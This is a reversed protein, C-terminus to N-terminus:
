GNDSEEDESFCPCLNYTGVVYGTDNCRRCEFEDPNDPNPM